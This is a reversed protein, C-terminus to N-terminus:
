SGEKLLNRYGPTWEDTKMLVSEINRIVQPFERKLREMADYYEHYDGMVFEPEMNWIDRILYQIGPMRSMYELLRKEDDKTYRDIHLIAKYLELGLKGLDVSIRYQVIVGLREMRKLRERVTAPTSGVRSSVETLPMRADNVMRSLIEHDLRDLENNILEGGWVKPPRIEGTLYMKPYQQVDVYADWGRKVIIPGFESIIENKLDYFEYDTKAFVAFILDWVGDCEGMWYVIGCTRLRQLLRERDQPINRLQLYVKYIKYGMRHPNISLNFGTIVGREVLRKIRYEVSQRSKRTRKALRSSPIRCDRDLETLIIRDAKDLKLM